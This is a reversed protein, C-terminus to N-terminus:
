DVFVVLESKEAWGPTSSLVMAAIQAIPFDTNRYGM